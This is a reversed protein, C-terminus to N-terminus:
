EDNLRYGQRARVQAGKTSVELKIKHYKGDSPAVKPYYGIVYLSRLEEAIRAFASVTSDLTEAAYVQGGTRNALTQLFADADAYLKDLNRTVPDSSEIEMRREVRSGPPEKEYIVPPRRRPSGIVVGGGGIEIRPKNPKPFGPPTPDIGGFEPPLPIRGDRAIPITSKKSEEQHKRAESEMWWRTDLQVTYIVAGTEEALATVSQATADISRMDIGDTFLIIARRGEVQKLRDVAGSVAEYLLKGFGSETSRIATEIEAKDSTFDTLQRVENDFSMVMLRDHQSIEKIFGVALNQIARLRDSASNSTDIVLVANFPQREAAFFAVEQKKGDEYVTFDREGLGTVVKGSKDTVVAPVQILLTNLKLTDQDDSATKRDQGKEAYITIASGFLVILLFLNASQMFNLQM